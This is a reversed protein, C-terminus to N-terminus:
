FQKQVQIKREGLAWSAYHYSFPILIHNSAKWANIGSIQATIENMMWSDIAPGCNAKCVVHTNPLQPTLAPKDWPWLGSPDILDSPNNQAYAYPYEGALQEQLRTRSLWLGLGPMYDRGYPRPKDFPSPLPPILSPVGPPTAFKSGVHMCPLQPMLVQPTHPTPPKAMQPQPVFPRHMQPHTPRVSSTFHPPLQPMTMEPLRSPAHPLPIPPTWEGSDKQFTIQLTGSLTYSVNWTVESGIDYKAMAKGAEVKAQVSWGPFFDPWKDEQYSDGSPREELDEDLRLHDGTFDFAALLCDDVARYISERNSYSHRRVSETLHEALEYIDPLEQKLLRLASGLTGDYVLVLSLVPMNHLGQEQELLTAAILMAITASERAYPPVYGAIVARSLSLLAERQHEEIISLDFGRKRLVEHVKCDLVFSQIHQVQRYRSPDSLDRLVRYDECGEIIDVWVHAIEHAMITEHINAADIFFRIESPHSLHDVWHGNSHAQQPRAYPVTDVISMPRSTCRDTAIWFDKLRPSPNELTIIPMLDRPNECQIDGGDRTFSTLDRAYTHGLVRWKMDHASVIQSDLAPLGLAVALENRRQQITTQEDLVAIQHSM